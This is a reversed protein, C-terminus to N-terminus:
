FILTVNEPSGEIIRSLVSKYLKRNFSQTRRTSKGNEM